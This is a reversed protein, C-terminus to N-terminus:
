DNRLNEIIKMNRYQLRAFVVICLIGNLLIGGTLICALRASHIGTVGSISPYVAILASLFGIALGGILLIVYEALTMTIIRSRNLGLATLMAFENRRDLLSRQVVIALGITGILLGLAGLVMFISLYTREISNFRALRASSKEMEWGLDRFTLNLENSIAEEQGPQGDILFVTTGSTAPFNKLFQHQDILVHGQFISASLGGILLLKMPQGEANNYTLTDGVKKGLSWQLVTQDAVAPICDDYENRLQPWLDTGQKFPALGSQFTFRGELLKSNVGLIKPNSIKNLNLCSADDGDAKYLQIATFPEVLAETKRYAPDNLNHLVPTTSEAWFLFGGTGSKRNTTLTSFDKTNLGTSVVLFTGVALLVVVLLNRNHNHRLNQSILRRVPHKTLEFRKQVRLVKDALLVSALLLLAGAIFFSSTGAPRSAILEHGVLYLASGYMLIILIGTLRSKWKVKPRTRRRQVEITERSLARRLVWGITVMSLIFSTILGIALTTFKYQSVLIDTRVIDHWVRNLGVFVLENYVIALLLGILGGSLSILAGESLFLRIITKGSFGLALLTGIEGQRKDLNFVFLLATLLVGSILIFFSLGIFLSSFDTGQRAAQLGEERIPRLQLDFDFPNCLGCLTQSLEEASCQSQDFRYATTKGYRNGWLRVATSWAVFAKPTGKYQYWYDEDKDRITKLEIPVGTNWDRCSESDSLGPIAPMLLRDAFYGEIPKIGSIKFRKSHETLERLPGIEYYSVDASDDPQANLDDALWRNIVLEDPSLQGDPLTSVFSYPTHNGNLTISNAFYTLIPTYDFGSNDVLKQVADDMFVRNSRLEWTADAASEILELGADELTWADSLIQTINKESRSTSIFVVNARHNLESFANMRDLPMFLNFPATQANQLNLRGMQEPTLIAGVEFTASVSQNEDSVFPANAPLLSGKKIRLNFQDGVSLNLRRATNQSIFVKDSGLTDIAPFGSSVVEQFRQDIGWIQLKNLRVTGGPISAIGELKLAASAPLGAENMKKALDYSFFRDGSILVHTMQGLRSTASQELSYKVSDGVILGGTLVATSIAVGLATTLHSKFYHRMGAWFLKGSFSTM